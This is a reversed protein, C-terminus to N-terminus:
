KGEYFQCVSQYLIIGSEDDGCNNEDYVGDIMMVLITM